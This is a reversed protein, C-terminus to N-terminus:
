KCIILLSVVFSNFATIFVDMDTLSDIKRDSDNDSIM